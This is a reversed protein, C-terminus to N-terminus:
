LHERTFAERWGKWNWNMEVGRRGWLLRRRFQGRLCQCFYCFFGWEKGVGSLECLLNLVNRHDLNTQLDPHRGRRGGGTRPKVRVPGRGPRHFTAVLYAWDSEGENEKWKKVRGLQVRLIHKGEEWKDRGIPNENRSMGSLSLCFAFYPKSCKGFEKRQEPEAWIPKWKQVHMKKQEPGARGIKDNAVLKDVIVLCNGANQFAM